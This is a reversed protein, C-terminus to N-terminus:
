ARRRQLAGRVRSRREGIPNRRHRDMTVDYIRDREAEGGGPEVFGVREALADWVLADIRSREEILDASADAEAPVDCRLTKPLAPSANSSPLVLERGLWAALDAKMNPDEIVGIFDFADFGAVALEALERDHRHDIFAGVPTLPHPWVLFRTILNDTYFAVRENALYEALPRRATKVYDGWAGFFRLQFNTYARSFLWHSVLRSRPERLVTIRNAVAFRATTTAPGIHGFVADADAPIDEPTMIIRKRVWRSLKDVDEFPGLASRDIGHFPATPQVANVLGETLSTGATKPIHNLILPRGPAIVAPTAAAEDEHRWEAGAQM